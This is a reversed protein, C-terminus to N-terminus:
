RLENTLYSCSPKQTRYPSQLFESMARMMFDIPWNSRCPLRAMGAQQECFPLPFPMFYKEFIALHSTSDPMCKLKKM